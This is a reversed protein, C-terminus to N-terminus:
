SESCNVPFVGTQIFTSTKKQSFNQTRFDPSFFISAAATYFIYSYFQHRTISGEEIIGQLTNNANQLFSFKELIYMYIDMKGLM